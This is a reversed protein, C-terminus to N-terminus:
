WPAIPERLAPAATTGWLRPFPNTGGVSDEGREVDGKGRTGVDDGGSRLRANRMAPVTTTAEEPAHGWFTVHEPRPRADALAMRAEAQGQSADGSRGGGGADQWGCVPNARDRRRTTASAGAGGVGGEGRVGGRKEFVAGM